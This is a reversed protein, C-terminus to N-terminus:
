PSVKARSFALSTGQPLVVQGDELKFHDIVSTVSLGGQVQDCGLGTGVEQGKGKAGKALHM